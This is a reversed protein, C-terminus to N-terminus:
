RNPEAPKASRIMQITQFRKKQLLLVRDGKLLTDMTSRGAELTDYDEDNRPVFQYQARDRM